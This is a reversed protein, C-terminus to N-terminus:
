IYDRLVRGAEFVLKDELQFNLLSRPFLTDNMTGGGPDFVKNMPADLSGFMGLANVIGLVFRWVVLLPFIIGDRTVDGSNYLLVVESDLMGSKETCGFCIANAGSVKTTLSHDRQHEDEDANDVPIVNTIVLIDNLVSVRDVAIEEKAVFSENAKTPEQVFREKAQDIMSMWANHRFGTVKHFWSAVGPDPENTNICPPDIHRQPLQYPIECRHTTCSPPPHWRADAMHRNHYGHPDAIKNSVKAALADLMKNTDHLELRLNQIAQM